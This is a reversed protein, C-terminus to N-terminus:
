AGVRYNVMMGADHHELIHCHLLYVQERGFNHSMDVAIRVTENPAVIVTDKWGRDTARLLGSSRSLVQFQFGHLHMPHYMGTNNQFDIVVVESNSFNYGYDALANSSDWVKGDIKFVGQDMTLPLTLQTANTTPIPNVTSLISPLQKDYVSDRVVRFELVEFERDILDMRGGMGGSGVLSHRLSYFRLVDGVNVRRFDVLVDIREGPSVLIEDTQVPSDLLGGEVGIVHFPVRDSGRLLVLRYPRANSGNLVRFRYIRREVDLYPNTTLNVLVTDGWFGMSGNMGMPNYLLNGNADLSKDQIILPIDTVGLQLDLANRLNDEDSDEIIVMGALGYYVQYGTRGHPHPHYFYTGSRDIIPISGYDYSRGDDVAYSPHGDQQWDARFGHWHIISTEGMNNSFSVNMSQGKRLVITPNYYSKGNQSVEYAFITTPKGAIFEHDVTKATITFQQNDGPSFYGLLGADATPVYLPNKSLSFGGGSGGGCATLWTGTYALGMGIGALKLFERRDMFFRREPITCFLM